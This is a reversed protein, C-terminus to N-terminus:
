PERQEFTARHEASCFAGGRGPLAQTAPLHLGCEVCRVMAEPEKPPTPPPPSDPLSPKERRLWWWALLGVVLITLLGKLM